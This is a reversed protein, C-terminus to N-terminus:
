GGSMGLPHDRCQDFTKTFDCFLWRGASSGRDYRSWDRISMWGFANRSVSAPATDVRFKAIFREVPGRFLYDWEEGKGEKTDNSDKTTM